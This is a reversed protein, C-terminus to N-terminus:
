DCLQSIAGFTLSIRVESNFLSLARINFDLDLEILISAKWRLAINMGLVRQSVNSQVRIAM